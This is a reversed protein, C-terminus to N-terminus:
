RPAAVQGTRECESGGLAYKGLVRAVLGTAALQLVKLHGSQTPDELEFPQLRHLLLNPFTVMRGERLEVTGVEQLGGGTKTCGFYEQLFNHEGPEYEYESEMDFNSGDAIQQFGLKPAKVNSASHCYMATACIYENLKGDIYWPEGGYETKEPALEINFMKVIVQLPKGGKGYLGKFNLPRAVKKDFTSSVFKNPEPQVLKSFDGDDYTVGTSKPFREFFQPQAWSFDGYLPSLTLRWLSIAGNIVDEIAGYLATHKPHINNYSAVRAKDDRINVDCPLWQFKLGIPQWDSSENEDLDEDHTAVADGEGCKKVCDEVGVVKAGAKLVRTKGYVLPYLSPDVVNLVTGPTNDGVGGELDRVNELPKIADQLALKTAETVTADAKLVNGNYVVIPTSVDKYIGKAKHRLEQICYDFLKNTLNTTNHADPAVTEERWRRVADEEFVEKRWDQRDTVSNMFQLMNIERTTLIPLFAKVMDDCEDPSQESRCLNGRLFATPFPPKGGNPEFPSPVWFNLPRGHGPAPQVVSYDVESGEKMSITNACQLRSAAHVLFVVAWERSSYRALQPRQLIPPQGALYSSAFEHLSVSRLNLQSQTSYQARLRQKVAKAHKRIFAKREEMLEERFQMAERLTIPFGEVEEFVEFLGPDPINAEPFLLCTRENAEHTSSRLELTDEFVKDKLEEPLRDLGTAATGTTAADTQKVTSSGRWWDVQQAPVHATSVVRVNPDVLFLAVIKRHGPKTPDELEFPQVQHQLINPFTLLRGEKTEVEGVYQVGPEENEFGFYERLFGHDGQEYAFENVFETEVFQKFALHSPKINASSYYYLATACIHENQKGEVHWTGGNYKPKEPTLEINALKVIIQLPRGRKGFYERSNLPKHVHFKQPDFAEPDPQIVTKEEVDDNNYLDPIGGDSSESEWEEDGDDEEIESGATDSGEVESDSNGMDEDGASDEGGEEGGESGDTDPDSDSESESESGDENEGGEGEEGGSAGSESGEQSDSHGDDAYKVNDCSIRKFFSPEGESALPALTREWLPIAADIVQEILGYLEVHKPHLNNIYSVIKAKEGSIDVECPLWQFKTSYPNVLMRNSDKSRRPLGKKELALVEGKGCREICDDLGLVKEGINLVRSKGYVLPFLSPHVLDLVMGDSGPHWDKQHAPVDELVKVAEQLALKVSESVATDSKVVDGNYVVIPTNVNNYIHQAKHRLEAICSDFMVDTMEVEDPFDSPTTDSKDTQNQSDSPAPDKAAAEHSSANFPAQVNDKSATEPTNSLVTGEPVSAGAKDLPVSETRWKAVIEDDFVKTQWGSKDTVVNMFRLMLLERVTLIPLFAKKVNEDTMLMASTVSDQLLATPLPKGVYLEDNPDPVWDLPKGHGPAPSVLTYDVATAPRAM